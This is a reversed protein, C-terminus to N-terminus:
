QFFFDEGHLRPILTQCFAMVVEPELLTAPVKFAEEQLLTFGAAFCAELEVRIKEELETTYSM